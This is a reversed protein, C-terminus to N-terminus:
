RGKERMLRLFEPDKRIPDLDRDEEVWDLDEFGTSFAVELAKVAFAIRGRRAEICAMNYYSLYIEPVQRGDLEQGVRGVEITKRYFEMAEQNRRVQQYDYAIFWRLRILDLFLLRRLNSRRDEVAPLLILREEENRARGMASEALELDWRLNTYYQYASQEERLLSELRAEFPRPEGLRLLTQSLYRRFDIVEGREPDTEGFRIRWPRITYGREMCHRSVDQYVALLRAVVEPQGVDGIEAIARNALSRMLLSYSPNEVVGVLVPLADRYIPRLDRVPDAYFGKVGGAFGTVRDALSALSRSVAEEVYHRRAQRSAKSEEGAQSTIRWLAARGAEGREALIRAMANRAERSPEGLLAKCVAELVSEEMRGHGLIEAAAARVRYSESRLSELLVSEVRARDPGRVAAHLRRVAGERVERTRHGLEQALTRFDTERSLATEPQEQNETLARALPCVAFVGGVTALFLGWVVAIPFTPRRILDDLRTMLLRSLLITSEIPGRGLRLGRRNGRRVLRPFFSPCRWFAPCRAGGAVFELKRRGLRGTLVVSSGGPCRM